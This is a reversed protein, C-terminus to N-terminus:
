GSLTQLAVVGYRCVADRLALSRHDYLLGRPVQPLPLLVGHGYSFLM